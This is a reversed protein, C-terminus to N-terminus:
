HHHAQPSWSCQHASVASCAKGQLEMESASSGAATNKIYTHSYSPLTSGFVQSHVQSKSLCGTQTHLRQGQRHRTLVKGWRARRHRETQTVLVDRHRGWGAHGEGYRMGLAAPARAMRQCRVHLNSIVGRTMQLVNYSIGYAAKTGPTCGSSLM